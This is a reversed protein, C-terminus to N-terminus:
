NEELDQGVDPSDPRVTDRGLWLERAVSVARELSDGEGVVAGLAPDDDPTLWVIWTGGDAIPPFVRLGLDADLLVGELERLNM